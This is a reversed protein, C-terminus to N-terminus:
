AASEALQSVVAQLTTAGPLPKVGIADGLAPGVAGPDALPALDIWWVGDGFRDLSDAALQAALRTKGCGGAGTLTLLRTAELVEGLEALERERGVFSTLQVPLNN